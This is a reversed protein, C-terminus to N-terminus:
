KKMLVLYGLRADQSAVGVSPLNANPDFTDFDGLFVGQIQDTHRVYDEDYGLIKYCSFALYHALPRFQVSSESYKSRDYKGLSLTNESLAKLFIQLQSSVLSLSDNPTGGILVQLGNTITRDSPDKSCGMQDMIQDAFRAQVKESMYSGFGLAVLHFPYIRAEYKAYGGKLHKLVPAIATDKLSNLYRTEEPLTKFTFTAVDPVGTGSTGPKGEHQLQITQPLKDRKVAVAGSSFAFSLAVLVAITKFM